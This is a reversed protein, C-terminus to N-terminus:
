EPQEPRPDGQLYHGTVKRFADSTQRGPYGDEAIAIGPIANLAHQLAKAADSRQRNSFIVGVGLASITETDFQVIGQDAMRRLIVAAGTQSSVANPDFKRDAVFKGSTYHLSASWLYPSAVPPRCNRYGFGNYKEFRYLMSPLSWDTVQDFDECRMADVASTEWSFPPSGQPPRGAPVNTTRGSLPDGNHLHCSFDLSCELSHITGVFYWPINLPAGVGQYRERNRLIAAVQRDVEQRREPRIQCTDFLRQYEARLERTLPVVVM